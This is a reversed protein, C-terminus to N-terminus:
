PVSTNISQYRVAIRLTEEQANGSRVQISLWNTYVGPPAIRQRIQFATEKVNTLKEATLGVGETSVKMVEFTQGTLSALTVCDEALEGASKAGLLIVHPSAQLDGVISLGVPLKNVPLREGGEREANLLVEFHYSARALITKPSLTLQYCGPTEPVPAVKAEFQLSTTTATLKSLPTLATITITRPLLPQSRESHQGFKLQAAEWSLPVRVRGRIIWRQPKSSHDSSKLVPELVAQFDRIAASRDKVLKAKFNLHVLIERSQGPPITLTKPEIKSCDCSTVFDVITLEQTSLNKIPLKVLHDDTEWAEGFDLSSLSVFLLPTLLPPTTSTTLRFGWACLFVAVGIGIVGLVQARVAQPKRESQANM